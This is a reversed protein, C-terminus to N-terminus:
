KEQEKAEFFEHIYASAENTINKTEAMKTIAHTASSYQLLWQEGAESRLKMMNVDPKAQPKPQSTPSFKQNMAAVYKNDDFKGEFIDSNFGLESLGKTLADTKVKKYIDGVKSWTKYTSSHQWVEISSALSIFGHKGDEFCYDLVGRYALVKDHPDDSLDLLQFSVDDVRWGIGCPGFIETAKKRQSQACATTLVKGRMKFAKTLSPDTECVQNWLKMNDENM